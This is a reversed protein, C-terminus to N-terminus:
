DKNVAIRRAGAELRALKPMTVTLVGHRYSAAAHDPDAGAPLSLTRRILGYSQHKREAPGSESNKEATVTLLGSSITLELDKEEFGPLEFTLEIARDTETIEARPSLGALPVGALPGGSSVTEFGRWFDDFARTIERHLSLFPDQSEDQPARAPLSRKGWWRSLSPLHM